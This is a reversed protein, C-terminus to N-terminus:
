GIEGWFKEPDLLSQHYMKKYEKDTIYCEDMINKNPQYIKENM